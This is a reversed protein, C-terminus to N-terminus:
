NNSFAVKIMYMYLIELSVCINRSQILLKTDYEFSTRGSKSNCCMYVSPRSFACALWLFKISIIFYKASLALMKLFNREWLKM